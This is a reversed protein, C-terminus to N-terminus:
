QRRFDGKAPNAFGPNAFRSGQEQRSAAQYARFGTISRGAWQFKATGPSYYTNGAMRNVTGGKIASVLTGRPSYVVNGTVSNGSAFQIWLEAETKRGSTNNYLTNGTFSCGTVIGTKSSYGGFAIGAKQNNYLTNSRVTIGTANSGRNEAGVEIGLDCETVTNREIVINRAGDVYIGAAYGGGYSSRARAVRNGSCVGDRVVLSTNPNVWKEGGIFDIGINNVDHVYNNTVRFNSVNGNLVLAESKAPQCNAIENGDILLNSIPRSSTGYITIGMADSGRIGSIRNKLLHIHSGSGEVRIGSGDKVRADRIDFGSIVVYNKNELYFINSVKRRGGTVVVGRGAAVFSVFRGSSGSVNIDVEETYTGPMVYATDGPRLSDAAKQITRWPSTKGGRNGDAGKTSVYYDAAHVGPGSPFGVAVFGILALIFLCSSCAARRM